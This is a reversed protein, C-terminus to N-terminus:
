RLIENINKRGIYLNPTIFDMFDFDIEINEKKNYIIEKDDRNKIVTQYLCYYKIKMNKVHPKTQLFEM